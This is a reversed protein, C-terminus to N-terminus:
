TREWSDNHRWVRLMRGHNTTRVSKIYQGSWDWEAGKFLSGAAPGLSDIGFRYKLVRGVKDADCLGGNNHAIERAIQRALELDSPRLDAAAEMGEKKLREGEQENFLDDQNTM